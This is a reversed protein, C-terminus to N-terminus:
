GIVDVIEINRKKFYDEVHKLCLDFQSWKQDLADVLIGKEFKLTWFGDQPNFVAHLRNDGSFLRNDVAGTSSLTKKGDMPQLQIVRDLSRMKAFERQALDFPLTNM